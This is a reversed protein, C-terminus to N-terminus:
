QKPTAEPWKMAVEEIKSNPTLSATGVVAVKDGAKLGKTIIFADGVKAGTEVISAKL